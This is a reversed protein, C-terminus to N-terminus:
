VSCLLNVICQVVLASGAMLATATLFTGDMDKVSNALHACNVHLHTRPMKTNTTLGLHVLINLLMLQEQHVTIVLQVHHEQPILLTRSVTIALQVYIM